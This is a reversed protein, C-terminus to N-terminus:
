ARDTIIYAARKKENQVLHCLDSSRQTELTYVTSSCLEEIMGAAADHPSYKGILLIVDYEAKM